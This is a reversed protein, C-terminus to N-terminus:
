QTASQRHPTKTTTTMSCFPPEPTYIEGDRAGDAKEKTLEPAFDTMTDIGPLDHDSGTTEPRAIPTCAPTALVIEM